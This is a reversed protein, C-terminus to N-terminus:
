EDSMELQMTRNLTTPLRIPNEHQEPLYPLAGAEGLAVAAQDRAGGQYREAALLLQDAVQLAREVVPQPPL